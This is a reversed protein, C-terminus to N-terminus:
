PTLFGYGLQVCLQCSTRKAELRRLLIVQPLWDRETSKM